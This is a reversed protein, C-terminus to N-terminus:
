LLAFLIESRGEEPQLSLYNQYLLFVGRSRCCPSPSICQQLRPATQHLPRPAGGKRLVPASCSQPPLLLLPDLVPHQASSSVRPSREM